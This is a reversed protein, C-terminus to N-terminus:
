PKAGGQACAPCIDRDLRGVSRWGDPTTFKERALEALVPFPRNMDTTAFHTVHTECQDCLIAVLASM